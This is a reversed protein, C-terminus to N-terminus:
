RGGTIRLAEMTGTGAGHGGAIMQVDLDLRRVEDYLGGSAAGWVYPAAQTAPFLGPNFLDAVFLIKEKPLYVILTDNTHISQIRHAQVSHVGDDLVKLTSVGEVTVPVPHLALRDPRVTHPNSFVRQYFPVSPEGALVTVGGDAVFHRIGGVHDSHFHSTIIYRIPKGPYRGKIASLTAESREPYFLPTDVLVLYDKMEVLLSHHSPGMVHVVGPALENLTIPLGSQDFYFFTQTLYKLNQLLQTSRKGLEALAPVVPQAPPQFSAPIEYASAPASVNVAINERDESHAEVGDFTIRVHFPYKVGSVDRYDSFQAEVVTDGIPPHDELVRAAAPLFTEPDILLRLEPAGEERFVLVKFMHGNVELDQEEQVISPNALAKRIVRLPSTLRTHELEATARSTFMGKTERQSFVTDKGDVFGSTGNVVEKFEYRDPTLYTTVHDHEIHLQDGDLEDTRVYSFNSLHRPVSISSGQEPSQRSGYAEVVENTVSKLAQAGGMSEVVQDLTSKEPLSGGCAAAVLAALMTARLGNPSIHRTRLREQIM